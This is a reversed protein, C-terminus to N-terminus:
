VRRGKKDRLHATKELLQQRKFNLVSQETTAPDIRHPKEAVKGLRLTKLRFQSNSGGDAKLQIYGVDTTTTNPKSQQTPKKRNGAPPAAAGIDGDSEFFVGSSTWVPHPLSHNPVPLCKQKSKGGAAAQIKNSAMARLDDHDTSLISSVRFGVPKAPTAQSEQFGFNRKVRVKDPTVTEELFGGNASEIRQLVRLKTHKAPRPTSAVSSDVQAERKRKKTPVTTAAQEKPMAEAANPKRRPASEHPVEEAAVAVNKATKKNAKVAKPDEQIERLAEALWASESATLLHGLETVAEKKKDNKRAVPPSPTVDAVVANVERKEKKPKKEKIAPEDTKPSQHKGGGNLPQSPVPKKNPKTSVSLPQAAEAVKAPVVTTAESTVPPSELAQKRKQKKSLKGSKDLLVDSASKEIEAASIQQNNRPSQDNAIEKGKKPVVADNASLAKGITPLTAKPVQEPIRAQAVTKKETQKVNVPKEQKGVTPENTLTSEAAVVAPKNEKEEVVPAQKQQQTTNKQQKLPSVGAKEKVPAVEVSSPKKEVVAVALENKEGSLGDLASRIQQPNNELQNFVAFASLAVRVPPPNPKSTANQQKKKKLKELKAGIGHSPGSPAVIAAGNGNEKDTQQNQKELKREKQRQKRSEINELRRRLAQDLREKKTAALEELVYNKVKPKRKKKKKTAEESQGTSDNGTTSNPDADGNTSAAAAAAAAAEREQQEELERLRKKEEKKKRFISAHKKKCEKEERIVENCRSLIKALDYQELTKPKPKPVMKPAAAPEEDVTVIDEVSVDDGSDDDTDGDDNSKMVDADKEEAEEEQEDVEMPEPEDQQQSTGEGFQEEGKAAEQSLDEEEFKTPLSLRSKKAKPQQQAAASGVDLSLRSKTKPATALAFPNPVISAKENTAKKNKKDAPKSNPTSTSMKTEAITNRKKAGGLYFQASILSVTPMSKRDPKSGAVAEETPTSNEPSEQPATPEGQEAPVNEEQEQPEGSNTENQDDNVEVAPTEVSKEELEAEPKAEELHIKANAPLSKRATVTAAASAADGSSPLSKRSSVDHSKLPSEPLDAKQIAQVDGAEHEADYFLEVSGERSINEIVEEKKEATDTTPTKLPTLMTAAVSPATKSPTKRVPTGQEKKDPTKGTALDLKSPTTKHTKVAPSRDCKKEPSAGEATAVDTVTAPTVSRRTASVNKPSQVVSGNTLEPEDESDDVIEIIRRRPKTKKKEAVHEEEEDLDDTIDGDSGALLKDEDVEDEDDPVIWSDNGDNEDDDIDEETDESGLDEGREPIENDEMEQRLDSSMSDGSQYCDMELAEDDIFENRDAQEHEALEEEEDDDHSKAPSKKPTKKKVSAELQEKKKELREEEEQKRISFADIGKTASGRVVTSWPRSHNEEQVESTNGTEVSTDTVEMVSADLLEVGSMEHRDGNQMHGNSTKANKVASNEEETTPPKPSSLPIPKATERQNGTETPMDAAGSKPSKGDIQENQEMPEGKVEIEKPVLSTEDDEKLANDMLESNRLDKVVVFMERPATISTPTKPFSSSSDDRKADDNFSVNKSRPSMLPLQLPSIGVKLIKTGRPPTSESRVSLVPSAPTVRPSLSAAKITAMSQRRNGSRISVESSVSEARDEIVDEEIIAEDKLARFGATMKPTTTPLSQVSNNGDDSTVSNRRSSRRVAPAATQPSGTLTEHSARLRAPTRPRLTAGDGEYAENLANLNEETLSSKRSRRGTSSEAEKLLQVMKNPVSSTASDVSESIRRRTGRVGVPTAPRGESEQIANLAVAKKTTSASKKPTGSTAAGAPKQPTAEQDVSRRRLAGRTVRTPAEGEQNM